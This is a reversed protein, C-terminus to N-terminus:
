LCDSHCWKLNKGEYDEKGSYAKVCPSESQTDKVEPLPVVTEESSEAVLDGLEIFWRWKFLQNAFSSKAMFVEFNM